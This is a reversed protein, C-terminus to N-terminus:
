REAPCSLNTQPPMAGQPLRAGRQTCAATTALLFVATAQGALEGCAHALMLAQLDDPEDIDAALAADHIVDFPVAAAAASQCFRSLSNKGFVLPLPLPVPALLLNTGSGQKCAAGRMRTPPTEGAGSVFRDVAQPTLRPLDAHVILVHTAGQTGAWAAAAALDENLGQACRTDFHAIADIGMRQDLAPIDSVLVVRAVTRSHKLVTAVDMMMALALAHRAEASLASALRSKACSFDKVPVLAWVRKM